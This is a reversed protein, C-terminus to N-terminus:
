MFFASVWLTSCLLKEVAVQVWSPWWKQLNLLDVKTLSFKSTFRKATGLKNPNSIPCDMTKKEMWFKKQAKLYHSFTNKQHFDQTLIRKSSQCMSHWIKGSWGFEIRKPFRRATGEKKPKVKMLIEMQNLKNLRLPQPRCDIKGVFHNKLKTSVVRITFVQTVQCFLLM